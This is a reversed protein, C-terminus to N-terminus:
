LQSKVAELAKLEDADLISPKKKIIDNLEKKRKKKREKFKTNKNTIDQILATKYKKIQDTFLSSSKAFNSLKNLAELHKGQGLLSEGGYDWTQEFWYYFFGEKGNYPYLLMSLRLFQEDNSGTTQIAKKLMNNFDAFLYYQTGEAAYSLSYGPMIRELWTMDMENPHKVEAKKELINVAEDRLQQGEQYALSFDKESSAAQYAKQYHQIQASLKEGFFSESRMNNFKNSLSNTVSSTGIAASYVWGDIGDSTKIKIWPTNFKVGRLTVKDKNDSIEGEWIVRDGSSVKDIIKATSNPSERIRLSNILVDLEISHAKIDSRLVSQTNSTPTKDTNCSVLLFSFLLLLIRQCYSM